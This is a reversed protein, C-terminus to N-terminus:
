VDGSLWSGLMELHEAGQHPVLIPSPRNLTSRTHMLLAYHSQMADLDLPTSDHRQTGAIYLEPSTIGLPLLALDLTRLFGPILQMSHMSEVSDSLSEISDLNSVIAVKTYLESQMCAAEQVAVSAHWGWGVACVQRTIRAALMACNMVLQRRRHLWTKGALIEKRHSTSRMTPLYVTLGFEALRAACERSFRNSDSLFVVARSGKVQDGIVDVVTNFGLEYEVLLQKHRESLTIAEHIKPNWKLADPSMRQIVRSQVAAARRKPSIQHFVLRDTALEKMAIQNLTHVTQSGSINRVQGNPACFLTEELEPEVHEENSDQDIEFHKNLFRYLESRAEPWFGHRTPVNRYEVQGASGLQGYLKSITRYCRHMSEPPFESDLQNGLILMPRPCICALLQDTGPGHPDCLGTFWSETHLGSDDTLLTSEAIWSTPVALAIRDDLASLYNTIAGGGSCGACAIREQDVDPRDCLYDLLCIGDHLFYSLLHHKSSMCQYGQVYHHNGTKAGYSEREGQGLPDWTLVVYGKRALTVFRAQYNDNIAYAKGPPAHGIPSLVAPHPHSAAPPLYLNATVYFGPLTQFLWKEVSYGDRHLTGVKRPKLHAKDPLGGLCDLFRERVREVYKAHSRFSHIRDRLRQDASLQQLQYARLEEDLSPVELHQFEQMGKVSSLTSAAGVKLLHRRSLGRDALFPTLEM